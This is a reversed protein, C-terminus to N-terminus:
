KVSEWGFAAIRNTQYTHMKNAIVLRYQGSGLDNVM